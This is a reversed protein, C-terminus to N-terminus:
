TLTKSIHSIIINHIKEKPLAADITVIRNKNANAIYEYGEEVKKHYALCKAEIRDYSNQAFKRALGWAPEIQLLFTLDPMLNGSAFNNLAELDALDLGNAFGQYAITSDTFRDCIIVFGCALHPRILEEIMQTRAALYLLAETKPSIAANALDKLIARIQNGIATTGPDQLALVKQGLGELYEALLEVQTSKGAGEGGEFSIFM